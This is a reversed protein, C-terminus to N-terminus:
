ELENRKNDIILLYVSLTEHLLFEYETVENMTCKRTENASEAQKM